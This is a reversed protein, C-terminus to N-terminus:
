HSIYATLVLTLNILARLACVNEWRYDM